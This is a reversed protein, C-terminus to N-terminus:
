QVILHAQQSSAASGSRWTAKEGYPPCSPYRSVPGDIVALVTALRRPYGHHQIVAIQRGARRMGM